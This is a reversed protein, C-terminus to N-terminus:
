VFFVLAIMLAFVCPFVWRAGANVRLVTDHREVRSLHNTLVVALLALFVLLTAGFIFLDLETLYPVRPLLNGLIFRYAILTLMSSTAVGIQAGANEPSIWFVTWSMFVILVMPAIIKWIYYNPRRDVEFAMLTSARSINALPEIPDSRLEPVRISWQSTAPGGMIGTYQEEPVPELSEPEFDPFTVRLQLVQTDFPFERLDLPAYFRGEFRQMYTVTGDPEVQVLDRFQTRTQIENGIVFRPSWVEELPLSRTGEAASALRSDRWTLRVIVAAEFSQDVDDIQLLDAVLVGVKVALPSTHPPPVQADLPEAECLPVSVCLIVLACATRIFTVAACREM